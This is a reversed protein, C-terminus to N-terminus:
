AVFKIGLYLQEIFRLYGIILYFEGGVILVKSFEVKRWLVLFYCMLDGGLSQLSKVDGEMQTSM